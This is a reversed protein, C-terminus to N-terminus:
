LDEPKPMSSVTFVKIESFNEMEFFKIVENFLTVRVVFILKLNSDAHLVEKIVNHFGKGSLELPGIEDIVLWGSKEKLAEGIIKEARFFAKQSFSYKGTTLINAEEPTAEMQFIEKTSANQFFRKKEIVPTLIGFVEKRNGICELLKTTKGSHKPGSLIYIKKETM